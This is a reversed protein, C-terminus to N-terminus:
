LYYMINNETKLEKGNYTLLFHNIKESIAFYNNIWLMIDNKKQSREMAQIFIKKIVNNELIKKDQTSLYHMCINQLKNRNMTSLKVMQEFNGKISIDSKVRFLLNNVNIETKYISKDYYTAM